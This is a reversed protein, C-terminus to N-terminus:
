GFYNHLFLFFFWFLLLWLVLVFCVIFLVVFWRLSIIGIFFFSIKMESEYMTRILRIRSNAKGRVIYRLTFIAVM